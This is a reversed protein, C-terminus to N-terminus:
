SFFKIKGGLIESSWKKTMSWLYTHSRHEWPWFLHPFATGLRERLFRVRHWGIYRKWQIFIYLACRFLVATLHAYFSDSPIRPFLNPALYLGNWLSPGVVYFVRNQKTTTCMISLSILHYSFGRLLVSFSVLRFVWPLVASTEFILQLPAWCPGDAIQILLVQIIGSLDAANEFYPMLAQALLCPLRLADPVPSTLPSTIWPVPVTSSLELCLPWCLSSKAIASRM